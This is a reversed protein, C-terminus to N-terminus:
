KINQATSERTNGASHYKLCRAERAEFSIRNEPMLVSNCTSFIVIEPVFSAFPENVKSFHM